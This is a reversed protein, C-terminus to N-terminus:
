FSEKLLKITFDLIEENDKDYDRLNLSFYLIKRLEPHDKDINLRIVEEKWIPLLSDYLEQLMPIVLHSRDYIEKRGMEWEIDRAKLVLDLLHQLPYGEKIFDELMVDDGWKNMCITDREIETRSLGTMRFYIDRRVVWHKLCLTMFYFKTHPNNKNDEVIRECEKYFNM